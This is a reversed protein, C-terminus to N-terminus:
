RSGSPALPRPLLAAGLAVVAPTLVDPRAPAVPTAADLVQTHVHLRPRPPPLPSVPTTRVPGVPTWCEPVGVVDGQCEVEQVVPRPIRAFLVVDSGDPRLVTGTVSFTTISTEEVETSRLKPEQFIKAKNTICDM